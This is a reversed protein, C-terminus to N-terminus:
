GGPQAIAHFSSSSYLLEELSMETDTEDYEMDEDEFKEVASIKRETQLHYPSTVQPEM